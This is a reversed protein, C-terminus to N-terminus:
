LKISCLKRRWELPVSAGRGRRERGLQHSGVGGRPFPPRPPVVGGGGGGGGVGGGGGGGGGALHYSSAYSGVWGGRRRFWGVVGWGGGSVKLTGGRCVFAVRCAHDIRTRARARTTLSSSTCRYPSLVESTSSVVVLYYHCMEQPAVSQAIVDQPTTRAGGMGDDTQRQQKGKDRRDM